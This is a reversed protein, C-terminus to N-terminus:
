DQAPAAYEFAGDAVNLAFRAPQRPEAIALSVSGLLRRSISVRADLTGTLVDSALPSELVAVVMRGSPRIGLREDRPTLKWALEHRGVGWTDIESDERTGGSAPRSLTVSRVEPDDFTMKINAEVYRRHSPLDQLDFPLVVHTFRWKGLDPRRQALAPLEDDPVPSVTPRGFSVGAEQVFRTSGLVPEETYLALFATAQRQNV